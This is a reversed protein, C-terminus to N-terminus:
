GIARETIRCCRHHIGRRELEKHIKISKIGMEIMGRRPADWARIGEPTHIQDHIQGVSDMLRDADVNPISKTRVIKM